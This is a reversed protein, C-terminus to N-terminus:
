KKYKNLFSARAGAMSQLSSSQNSDIVVCEYKFFAIEYQYQRTTWDFAGFIIDIAYQM